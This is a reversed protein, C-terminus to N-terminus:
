NKQQSRVKLVTRYYDAIISGAKLRNETKEDKDKMIQTCFTLVEKPKAIDSQVM